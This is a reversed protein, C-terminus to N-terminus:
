FLKLMNSVYGMSTMVNKRVLSQLIGGLFPAVYSDGPEAQKNDPRNRGVLAMNKAAQMGAIFGLRASCLGRAAKSHEKPKSLSPKAKCSGHDLEKFIWRYM